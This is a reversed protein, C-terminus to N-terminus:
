RTYFVPQTLSALWQLAELSSCSGFSCSNNVRFPLSKPSAVAGGMDAYWTNDFATSVEIGGFRYAAQQGGATTMLWNMFSVRFNDNWCSPDWTFGSVSSQTPSGENDNDEWYHISADTAIATSSSQFRFQYAHWQFDTPMRNQVGVGFINKDLNWVPFSTGTTESQINMMVRNSSTCGDGLIMLKGGWAGGDFKRPDNFATIQFYVRVFIDDGQAIETASYSPGGFGPYHECSAVDTCNVAGGTVPPTVAIYEFELANDGTPGSTALDRFEYYVGENAWQGSSGDTPYAGTFGYTPPNNVNLQFMITGQAPLISVATLFIALLAAYFRM